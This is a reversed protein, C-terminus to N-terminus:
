FYAEKIKSTTFEQSEQSLMHLILQILDEGAVGPKFLENVLGKPDRCKGNKLSKLVRKLDYLTWPATKM